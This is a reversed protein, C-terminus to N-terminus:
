GRLFLSIADRQSARDHGGGLLSMIVVVKWVRV